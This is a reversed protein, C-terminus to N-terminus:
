LYQVFDLASGDVLKGASDISAKPITKAYNLSSPLHNTHYYTSKM